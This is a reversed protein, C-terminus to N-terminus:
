ASSSSVRGGALLRLFVDRGLEDTGLLHGWSPPEFRALLDVADPDHGMAAVILPQCAALLVLVALVVASIAAPRHELFRHWGRTHASHRLLPATLAHMM